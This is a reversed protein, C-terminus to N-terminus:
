AANFVRRKSIGDKTDLFRPSRGRIGWRITNLPRAKKVFGAFSVRVIGGRIGLHAPTTSSVAMHHSTVNIGHISRPQRM